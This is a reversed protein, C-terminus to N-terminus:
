RQAEVLYWCAASCHADCTGREIEGDTGHCSNYSGRWRSHTGTGCLGKCSGWSTWAASVAMCRWSRTRMMVVPWMPGRGIEGGGHLGWINANM